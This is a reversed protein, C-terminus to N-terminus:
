GAQYAREWRKQLIALTDELTTRGELYDAYIEAMQNDQLPRPTGSIRMREAACRGCLSYDFKAGGYVQGDLVPKIVKVYQDNTLDAGGVSSLDMAPVFGIAESRLKVTAPSNWWNFLSRFLM